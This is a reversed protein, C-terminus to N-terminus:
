ASEGGLLASLRDRRGGEPREPGQSAPVRTFVLGSRGGLPRARLAPPGHWGREALAGDVEYALAMARELSPCYFSFAKGVWAPLSNVRQLAQEDRAIRLALPAVGPIGGAQGVVTLVAQGIQALNEVGATVYVMHPSEAPEGPWLWLLWAPTLLEVVGAPRSEEWM